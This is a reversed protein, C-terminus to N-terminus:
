KKQFGYFFRRTMLAQKPIDLFSCALDNMKRFDYLLWGDIGLFNLSHQAEKLRGTFDM